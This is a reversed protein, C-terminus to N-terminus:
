LLFRISEGQSHGGIENRGEGLLVTAPVAQGTKPFGSKGDDWYLGQLVATEECLLFWGGFGMRVWLQGSLPM